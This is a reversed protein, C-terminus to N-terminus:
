RTKEASSNSKGLVSISTLDTEAYDDVDEGKFTGTSHGWRRRGGKPKSPYTLLNANEPEQRMQQLFLCFYCAILFM